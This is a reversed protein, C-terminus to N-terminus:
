GVMHKLFRRVAFGIGSAYRRLMYRYPNSIYRLYRAEPRIVAFDGEAKLAALYAPHAQFLRDVEAKTGWKRFHEDIMDMTYHSICNKCALLPGRSKSAYQQMSVDLHLYAEIIPTYYAIGYERSGMASNRTHRYLYLVRNELWVTDALYLCQMSFIKDESYRLGDQFRIHYDNLLKAAYFMAGFHERSHIWVQNAGGPHFGEEMDSPSSTPNLTQDCNRSQFGVLDYGCEMLTAIKDTFFGQEWCDDADLFCIYRKDIEPQRLVYAIGANRASSVGGNKQHIVHVRPEKRAIEDCIRPTDDPSGDDVLIIDIEKSPQNLVSYAAQELYEEVNYCPIIVHIMAM